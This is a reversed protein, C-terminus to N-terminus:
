KPYAIFYYNEKQYFQEAFAERSFPKDRNLWMSMLSVNMKCRDTLFDYVMEPTTGYKDAAGMGHEFIVVPRSKLLTNLAGQLVALEGGEVDIKIFDVKLGKPLINDLRNTQVFILETTAKSPYDRQLFGSYPPNSVVHTFTSMGKKESLAVPHIRCNNPFSRTLSQYFKPLPEFAYHIGNPAHKLMTRLIEGRHCGVDICNSRKTLLKKMVQLTQKDYSMNATFPTNQLILKVMNRFSMPM